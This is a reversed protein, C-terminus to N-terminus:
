GPLPLQLLRRRALAAAAGRQVAAADMGAPVNSSSQVAERAAAVGHALAAEAGLGQALAFLCGAVLCDGAGSCNVVAAPLAPLHCVAPPSARPAPRSPRACSAGQRCCLSWGGEWGCLEAAACSPQLTGCRGGSSPRAGAHVAGRRRGGADAGRAAGGGAAAHSHRAAHRAACSGRPSSGPSGCSSSTSSSRSRM